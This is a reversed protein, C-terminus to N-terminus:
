DSQSAKVKEVHNLNKARRCESVEPVSFSTVFQEVMKDLDFVSPGIQHKPALAIVVFSASPPDGLCVGLLSGIPRHGLSALAEFRVSDLNDSVSLRFVEVVRVEVISRSHNGIIDIPVVENLYVELLLVAEAVELCLSGVVVLIIVKDFSVFVSVYTKVM